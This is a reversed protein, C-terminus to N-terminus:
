RDDFLKGIDIDKIEDYTVDRITIDEGAMRNLNPDHSLVLVDDKTLNVDIEVADVGKQIGSKVSSVTNEPASFGDGRHGAVEVDWTLYVISNQIAGNVLVIVALGLA